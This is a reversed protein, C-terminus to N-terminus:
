TEEGDEVINAAINDLVFSWPDENMYSIINKGEGEHSEACLSANEIFLVFIWM